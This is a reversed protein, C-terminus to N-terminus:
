KILNSLWDKDIFMLQENDMKDIIFKITKQSPKFKSTKVITKPLNGTVGWEIVNRGTVTCIKTGLEEIVGRDRLETFRSGFGLSKSEVLKMAESSTCPESIVIANFVKLRMTSLLGEAKIQNYCDISTKRVSTNYNM